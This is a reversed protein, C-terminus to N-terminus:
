AYNVCIFINLCLNKLIYAFLLINYCVTASFLNHKNFGLKDGNGGKDSIDANVLGGKGMAFNTINPKPGEKNFKPSNFYIQLHTIQM